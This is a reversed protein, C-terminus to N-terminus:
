ATTSLVFAEWGTFDNKMRSHTLPINLNPYDLTTLSLSYTKMNDENMLIGKSLFSVVVMEYLSPTSSWSIRHLTESIDLVLIGSADVVEAIVLDDLTASSDTHICPKYFSYTKPSFSHTFAVEEKVVWPLSNRILFVWTDPKQSNIVALVATKGVSYAYNYIDTVTNLLSIFEAIM